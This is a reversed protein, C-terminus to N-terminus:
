PATTPTTCTTSCMSAAAFVIQGDIACLKRHLRRWYSPAFLLRPYPWLRGLPAFVQWQVGAQELELRWPEALLGTGLGDVLVQVAVGRRAARM